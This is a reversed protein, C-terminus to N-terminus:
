KSVYQNKFYQFINENSIVNDESFHYAKYWPSDKKLTENVLAYASTKLFSSIVIDTANKVDDPLTTKDYGLLIPTAGYSSYSFYVDPVIPGYHWAEISDEFASKGYNVLMVGQVFYLLKQLKLNSTPYGKNLTETIIYKAITLARM